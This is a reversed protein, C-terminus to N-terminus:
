RSISNIVMGIDSPKLFLSDIWPNSTFRSYIVLRLILNLSYALTTAIAAGVLGYPPILVLNGILNVVVVVVSTYMNLEPRGRAAIDNALVRSASGVVIGPLLILLPLVSDLYEAGFILAVFPYAIAALVLGGLLTVMLVWRSILPTLKKRKAEDSSLQSLRPLLVTSVAQSVLWLKEALAVAIVYVGTAAPDIFFNVLFIDVKYNVFALINSLHAKWGYSLAQRFYGTQYNAERPGLLPRLQWIALVVVGLSALLHTGVLLVINRIGLIALAGILALWILPQAILVLNYARFQQLGQFISTLFGQLLGLPFAALALWLVFPEVGPFFERGKWSLIVTGIALGIILLILYIRVNAYLVNRTTVQASGLYYVNAPAIGLNLFTALMNPLLLAVAFAGNGEPGYVRAIIAATILGLLGAGVQRGFTAAFNRSLSRLGLGQM